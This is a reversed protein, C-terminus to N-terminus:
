SAAPWYTSVLGAAVTTDVKKAAEVLEFLKVPNTTNEPTFPITPNQYAFRGPLLYGAIMPFTNTSTGNLCLNLIPSTVGNILLAPVQNGASATGQWQAAGWNASSADLWNPMYGTGFCIVVIDNPDIGSNVALAVAALTPDHHVFAGDVLGNYNGFTHSGLMGPMAGSAAVADAIPTNATPSGTFNNFLVPGWPQQTVSNGVDFATFLLNQSFDALTKTGFVRSVNAYDKTMDYAPANPDTGPDVFFERGVTEYALILEEPSMGHALSAAIGSGTSTGALMDANKVIGPNLKHLQNLMVLSALGRMGGGCFSLIKFPTGM